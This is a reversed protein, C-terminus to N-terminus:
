MCVAALYLEKIMERIIETELMEVKMLMLIQDDVSRRILNLSSLCLITASIFPSRRIKKCRELHLLM